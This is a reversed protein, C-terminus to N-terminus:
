RVAQAQAVNKPFGDLVFGNSCERSRVIERMVDIILHDPVIQSMALIYNVKKGADTNNESATRLMHTVSLYALGRQHAIKCALTSKGTGTPGLFICYKHTQSKM